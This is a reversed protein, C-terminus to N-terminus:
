ECAGFVRRVRLDSPDGDYTEKKEILKLFFIIEEQLLRHIIEFFLDSELTHLASLITCINPSPVSNCNDKYFLTLATVIGLNIATIHKLYFLSVVFVKYRHDGSVFM